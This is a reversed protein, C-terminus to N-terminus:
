RILTVDGFITKEFGDAYTLHVQWIFVGPNMLNGEHTGDWGFDEENPQGNKKEMVLGGWRDYIRLWDIDAIKGPDAM